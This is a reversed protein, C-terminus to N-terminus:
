VCLVRVCSHVRACIRVHVCARVCACAHVCACVYESVDVHMHGATSVNVSLICPIVCLLM